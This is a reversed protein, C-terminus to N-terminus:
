QKVDKVNLILDYEIIPNRWDLRLKVNRFQKGKTKLMAQSPAKPVYPKNGNQKQEIALIMQINSRGAVSSLRRFNEKTPNDLIDLIFENVARARDQSLTLNERYNTEWNPSGEADAHGEVIVQKITDKYDRDTVLAVYEPMVQRLFTKAGGLLESKNTQFWEDSTEITVDGTKPDVKIEKHRKQLKKLQAVFQNFKQRDRDLTAKLKELESHTRQQDAMRKKLMQAQIMSLAQFAFLLALFVLLLSSLLDSYTIWFPNEAEEEAEAELYKSM